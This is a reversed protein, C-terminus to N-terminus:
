LRSKKYEYISDIDTPNFLKQKIWKYITRKHVKFYSALFSITIVLVPEETRGQKRKWRPINDICPQIGYDTQHYKIGDIEIINIM